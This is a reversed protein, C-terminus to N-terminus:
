QINGRIEGNPCFAAGATHVNLYANGGARLMTVFAAFNAPAGSAAVYDTATFTQNIPTAPSTFMLVIPGSVTSTGFHIHAASATTSLGTYTFNSVQIQTGDGSVTVTASGAATAGANTCPTTEAAKTLTVTFVKAPPADATAAPADIANGSDSSCAGLLAALGLCPLLSTKGFRISNMM